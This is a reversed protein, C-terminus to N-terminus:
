HLRLQTASEFHPLLTLRKAQQNIGGRLVWRPPSLSVIQEATVQRGHTFRRVARLAVLQVYQLARGSTTPCYQNRYGTTHRQTTVRTRRTPEDNKTGGVLVYPTHQGKYCPQDCASTERVSETMKTTLTLLVHCFPTCIHCTM